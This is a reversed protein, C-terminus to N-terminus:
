AARRSVLNLCLAPGHKGNGVCKKRAQGSRSSQSGHTQAGWWLRGWGCEAGLRETGGGQFCTQVALVRPEQCGGGARVWTLVGGM